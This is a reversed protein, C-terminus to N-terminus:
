CCSSQPMGTIVFGQEDLFDITADSFLNNAEKALFVQLGDQEITIDSDEAAEAIDMALSPM